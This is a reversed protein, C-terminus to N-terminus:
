SLNGNNLEKIEEECRSLERMDRFKPGHVSYKGSCLWCSCHIKGKSLEGKYKYHWYDNQEKIIRVKRNIHRARQIRYFEKTRNM